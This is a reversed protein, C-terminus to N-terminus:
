GDSEASPTLARRDLVRRAKFETRPLVGPALLEIEAHVGLRARLRERIIARLEHQLAPTTARSDFEVQVMLEDLARTRSVVIRFEGGCGEIARLTDEVAMPYIKAGRVIVM